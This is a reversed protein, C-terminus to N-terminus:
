RVAGPVAGHRRVVGAVVVVRGLLGLVAGARAEGVRLLRGGGADDLVAGGGDAGNARELDAADGAAATARDGARVGRGAGGARIARRQGHLVGGDGAAAAGAATAQP